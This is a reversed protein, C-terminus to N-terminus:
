SQAALSIPMRKESSQLSGEVNPTLNIGRIAQLMATFTLGAAFMDINHHYSFKDDPPQKDWFEPTKFSLTGVDSTMSSTEVNPDLIKSLGFDGLKLM